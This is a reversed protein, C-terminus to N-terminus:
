ERRGINRKAANIAKVIKKISIYGEVFYCEGAEDFVMAQDDLSEIIAKELQEEDM